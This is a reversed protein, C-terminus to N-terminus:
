LLLISFIVKDEPKVRPDLFLLKESGNSDAFPLVLGVATNTPNKM